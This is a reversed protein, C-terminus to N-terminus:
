TCRRAGRVNGPLEQVVAAEFSWSACEPERDHNRGEVALTVDSPGQTAQNRLGLAAELHYDDIGTGRILCAISDCLKFVCQADAPNIARLAAPRGVGVPSELQRLPLEDADKMLVVGPVGLACHSELTENSLVGIDIQKQMWDVVNVFAVLTQGSPVAWKGEIGLDNWRLTEQLPKEHLVENRHYRCGEAAPQREGHPPEIGSKPISRIPVEVELERTGRLAHIPRAWQRTKAEMGIREGHPATSREFVEASLELYNDSTVFVGDKIHPQPATDDSRGLEGVLDIDKKGGLMVTM